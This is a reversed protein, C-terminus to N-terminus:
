QHTHTDSHTHLSYFSVRKRERAALAAKTAREIAEKTREMQIIILSLCLLYKATRSRRKRLTPLTPELDLQLGERLAATFRM